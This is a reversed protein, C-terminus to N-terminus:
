EVHRCVGDWGCVAREVDLVLEVPLLCRAVAVAVNCCPNKFVGPQAQLRTSGCTALPKPCAPVGVMGGYRSGWGWGWGRMCAHAHRKFQVAGKRMLEHMCTKAPLSLGRSHAKCACTGQSRSPWRPRTGSCLPCSSQWYTWARPLPVSLMRPARLLVPLGLGPVLAIGLSEHGEGHQRAVTGCWWDHTGAAPATCPPAQRACAGDAVLCPLEDVQFDVRVVDDQPLAFVRGEVDCFSPSAGAAIVCCSMVALPAPPAQPTVACLWIVRCLPPPQVTRAAAPLLVALWGIGILCPAPDCTAPRTAVPCAHM